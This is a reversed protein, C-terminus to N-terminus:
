RSRGSSARPPTWSRAGAGCRRGTGPWWTRSSAPSTGCRWRAWSGGAAGRWRCTRRRSGACRPGARSTRSRTRRSSSAARGEARLFAVLDPLLADGAPRVEVGAGHAARRPRLLVACTTLGALRATRVGGAPRAGVLAGVARHNERALVGFALQGPPTRERLLRAGRAVLGAGRFREAVRVQGLYGVREAVGNVFASREARCAFGALAGTARERAVVVDCPDGMITTGLFYDPERAFRVAVAGPMAVSGVLARLDPEDAPTALRVEFRDTM